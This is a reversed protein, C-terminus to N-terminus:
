KKRGGACGVARDFQGFGDETHLGVDRDHVLDYRRLQGLTTGAGLAGLGAGLNRTATLLGELLLAGTVGTLTGGTRRLPGTTTNSESRLRALVGLAGGLLHHLEGKARGQTVTRHVALDDNDVRPIPRCGAGFSGDLGKLVEVDGPRGENNDITIILVGDLAEAVQLM